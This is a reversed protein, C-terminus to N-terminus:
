LLKNIQKERWEELTCFLKQNYKKYTGFDNKLYHFGVLYSKLDKSIEFSVPVSMIVEYSKGITLGDTKTEYELGEGFNACVLIM